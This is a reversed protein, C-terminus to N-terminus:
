ELGWRLKGKRFCSIASRFRGASMLVKFDKPSLEAQPYRAYALLLFIKDERGTLQHKRAFLEMARRIEQGSRTTIRPEPHAQDSFYTGQRLNVAPGFREIMRVWLDWDQWAPMDADFLGCDLFRQRLTFIQSGARNATRIQHLDVRADWNWTLVENNRIAVTADCLASFQGGRVSCNKWFEVLLGIRDPRFWDDDDLGTVFEGRAAEIAQNRAECPGLSRTNSILRVAVDSRISNIFRESEDETGDTVVILEIDRYTQGLVSYVARKLLTLRNKTPLYVSVVPHNM